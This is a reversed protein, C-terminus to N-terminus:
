RFKAARILTEIPGNQHEEVQVKSCRRMRSNYNNM